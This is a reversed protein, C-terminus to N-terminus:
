KGLGAKLKKFYTNGADEMAPRLFPHASKLGDLGYEQVAAYEGRGHYHPGRRTDIILSSSRSNSVTAFRGSLDRDYIFISGDLNGTQKAPPEGGEAPSSASWNARINSVITRIVEANTEGISRLADAEHRSISAKLGYLRKDPEGKYRWGFSFM